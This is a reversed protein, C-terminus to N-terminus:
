GSERESAGAEIRDAAGLEPRSIGMALLVGGAGM